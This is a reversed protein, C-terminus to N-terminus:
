AYGRKSSRGSRSPRMTTSRTKQRRVECPLLPPLDGELMRAYAAKVSAFDILTRRGAGGKLAIKLWRKEEPINQRSFFLWRQVIRVSGIMRIVTGKSVALPEISDTAIAKV